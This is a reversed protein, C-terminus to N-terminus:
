LDDNGLFKKDKRVKTHLHNRKKKHERTMDMLREALVYDTKPNYGVLDKIKFAAELPWAYHAIEPNARVEEIMIKDAEKQFGPKLYNIDHRQAIEDLDSTPEVGNMVKTVVDTGIGLYEHGPLTFDWSTPPDPQRLNKIRRPERHPVSSPEESM